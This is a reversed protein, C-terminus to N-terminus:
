IILLICIKQFILTPVYVVDIEDPTQKKTAKQANPLKPKNRNQWKISFYETAFINTTKPLLDNYM